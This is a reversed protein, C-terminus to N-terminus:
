NLAITDTLISDNRGTINVNNNKNIDSHAINSLLADESRLGVDGQVTRSRSPVSNQSNNNNDPPIVPNPRLGNINADLNQVHNNSLSENKSVQFESAKLKKGSM